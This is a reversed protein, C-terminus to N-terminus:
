KMRERVKKLFGMLAQVERKTMFSKGIIRKWLRRQTERKTSTPFPINRLIDEVRKLLHYREQATMLPYKQAIKEAGKNQYLEYLVITVAHSLNLAPYKDGVPISVTFDCDIIEKNQLGQGERGFVLGIKGKSSIIKSLQKPTVPSRPINYDTGLRATTAILTAHSARVQKWKLLKAKRLISKAHKARDLAEKSLHKCKPNVLILSSFTFNAMARAVAGVNGATEPEVLIITIM